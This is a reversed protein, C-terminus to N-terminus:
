KKNGIRSGSYGSKEMISHSWQLNNLYWKITKKLGDEFNIKTKWGLQNQILNSNIAYRKDHGPRDAVKKILSSHPFEKPNVEDLIDCIKLQVEKNTREGFGGICYSKGVEGKDAILLLAEIHDEVYLWDRINLGDGYLPIQEGKIGKLISLPILKEPFQYPGFNNSCNSIITPLGYTYYWSRVLHDSSAKSASYPSRPSYKTSEDFKGNLGLSGFVEDTSVHIFRFLKKKIDSIDKWYARSAELLNFTGIINSEIFNLPNDISRDVHSEAALHIILDPSIDKVLKELKEKNRLDLKLFFHRLKYDESNKIWSLDSAYGMQDVNYIIWNKEKLLKRILTGGIFGAGGTVIVRCKNKIM